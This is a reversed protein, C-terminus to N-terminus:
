YSLATVLVRAVRRLTTRTVAPECGPVTELPIPRSSTAPPDSPTSGAGPAPARMAKQHPVFPPAPERKFYVQCFYRRGRTDKEM